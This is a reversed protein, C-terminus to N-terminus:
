FGIKYYKFNDPLDNFDIKLKNEKKDRNKLFAKACILQIISKLEGVNGKYKHNVLLTLLDKHIYIDSNIRKAEEKFINKIILIKEQIPRENLSPLKIVVPIRRLFTELLASEPKETTAAIIMLDAKKMNIDGLRHYEGKDILYFLMEQGEPPLRHVEDLFLVGENALEVLGVKDTEACTFAGKIHGFLYSMLLQPNNYYDACNLTVFNGRKGCQRRYRCMLEALYSKDSGPPGIILTHLGNDPYLVAAKAEEVQKKLSGNYGIFSKFIDDNVTRNEGRIVKLLEDRTIRKEVKIGTIEELKEKPIYYVPRTVVKVLLNERVLENLISSVNPRAMKLIKSISDTKVGYINKIEIDEISLNKCKELIFKYVKEKNNMLLVM